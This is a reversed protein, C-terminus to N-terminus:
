PINQPVEGIKRPYWNRVLFTRCDKNWVNQYEFADAMNIDYVVFKDRSLKQYQFFVLRDSYFRSINNHRCLAMTENLLHCTDIMCWIHHKYFRFKLSARFVRGPILPLVEATYRSRRRVIEKFFRRCAESYDQLIFVNNRFTNKVIGM